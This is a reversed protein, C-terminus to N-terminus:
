LLTGVFFQLYHESDPPKNELIQPKKLGQIRMPLKLTSSMSSTVVTLPKMEFASKQELGPTKWDQYIITFLINIFAAAPFSHFNTDELEIVSSMPVYNM